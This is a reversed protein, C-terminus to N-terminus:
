NAFHAFARNAEAMKHVEEKKKVAAGAGESAAKLEEYLFDEMSKGSKSRASDVIWRIALAESRWQKVPLPVQYTAGGIRRSRIEKVPQVNDMAKNFIELAKKPDDSLKEMAGYVINRAKTKNGSLMIKRILRTVTPSKYVPDPKVERRPARKGRM